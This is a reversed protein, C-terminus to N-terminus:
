WADVLIDKFTVLRDNKLTPTVSDHEHASPCAWWALTLLFTGVIHVRREQTSMIKGLTRDLGKKM